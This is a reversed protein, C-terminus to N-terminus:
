KNDTPRCLHILRCRICLKVTLVYQKRKEKWYYSYIYIYM